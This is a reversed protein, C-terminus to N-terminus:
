KFHQFHDGDEGLCVQFRRQTDDVTRWLVDDDTNIELQINGESDEIIRPNNRYV